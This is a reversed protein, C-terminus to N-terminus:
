RRPAHRLRRDTLSTTKGARQRLPTRAVPPEHVPEAGTHVGGAIGLPGTGMASGKNLSKNEDAATDVTEDNENPILFVFHGKGFKIVINPNNESKM